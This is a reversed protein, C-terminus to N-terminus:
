VPLMEILNKFAFNGDIGLRDANAKADTCGLEKPNRSDDHWRGRVDYRHLVYWASATSDKSEFVNWSVLM